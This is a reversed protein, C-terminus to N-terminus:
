GTSFSTVIMASRSCPHGQGARELPRPRLAERLRAPVGPTTRSPGTSESTPDPQRYPQGHFPTTRLLRTSM